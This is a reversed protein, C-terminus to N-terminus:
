SSLSNTARLEEKMKSVAYEAALIAHKAESIWMEIRELNAELDSM